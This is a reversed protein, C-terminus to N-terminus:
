CLNPFIEIIRPRNNGYLKLCIKERAARTKLNDGERQGKGFANKRRLATGRLFVETGYFVKQSVANVRRLAAQAFQSTRGTFGGYRINKFPRGRLFIQSPPRVTKSCFPAARPSKFSFSPPLM